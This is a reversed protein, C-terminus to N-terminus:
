ASFVAIEVGRMRDYNQAYDGDKELFTEGNLACDRAMARWDIYNQLAAPIETGEHMEAVYDEADSHIGHFHNDLHDSWEGEDSCVDNLHGIIAPLWEADVRDEIEEVAAVRAAITELSPYEGLDRVLNLPDDYDHCAWEEAGTEALMATIAARMEDADSSAEIWIGRLIGNVYAALDAIYLNTM